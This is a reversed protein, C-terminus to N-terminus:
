PRFARVVLSLGPLRDVPLLSEIAIAARLGANIPAAVAEMESRGEDTAADNGYARRLKAVPRLLVNWSAIDHVVFGHSEVLDLLEQREYRRVHGLAVDHGSWMSKGAPVAVVLRGGPRLTRFSEAAVADHDEIHEWVDTSLVLDVRGDAIPLRTADGRVVPVGRRACLRAGMETLEVGTVAWGLERLVAANGGPGPGVDIARGAPVGRMLRRVLARRGAYWWHRDELAASRRLEEDDM